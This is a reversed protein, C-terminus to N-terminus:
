IDLEHERLRELAALWERIGVEILTVLDGQKWAEQRTSLRDIRESSPAPLNWANARPM